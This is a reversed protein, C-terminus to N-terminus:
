ASSPMRSPIEHSSNLRTSKRDKYTAKILIGIQKLKALHNEITKHSIGLQEGLHKSTLYGSWWYGDYFRDKIKNKENYECWFQVRSIIAASVLGYKISDEVNIYYYKENSQQM